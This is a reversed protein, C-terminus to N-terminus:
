WEFGITSLDNMPVTTKVNFAHLSAIRFQVQRGGFYTRFRIERPEERRMTQFAGGESYLELKDDILIVTGYFRWMTDPSNIRRYAIHVARPANVEDEFACRVLGYDQGRWHVCNDFEIGTWNREYLASVSKNPPWYEGPAYVKYLPRFVGASALGLQLKRRISAFNKFYGNRRFDFLCLPDVDLMAALAVIQNGRSPVGNKVWDYLSSRQRPRPFRPNSDARIEWAVIFGEFGGFGQEILRVTLKDRVYIPM